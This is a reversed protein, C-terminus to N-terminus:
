SSDGGIGNNYAGAYSDTYKHMGEFRSPSRQLAPVLRGVDATQQTQAAVRESMASTHM